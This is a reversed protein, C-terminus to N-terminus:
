IRQTNVISNETGFSNAIYGDAQHDNDWICGNVLYRFHFQQDSPLRQKFKFCRGKKNFKMNVPQWNTFEAVLQVEEAEPHQFEFTVEAENKTKFFRKSLM